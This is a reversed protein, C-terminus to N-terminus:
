SGIIAVRRGIIKANALGVHNNAGVIKVKGKSNNSAFTSRFLDESDTSEESPGRALQLDSM